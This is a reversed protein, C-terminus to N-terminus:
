SRTGSCKPAAWAERPQAHRAYEGAQRQRHCRHHPPTQVRQLHQALLHCHGRGDGDTSAKIWTRLCFSHAELACQCSRLLRDGWSEEGRCIYCEGPDALQAASAGQNNDSPRARKPPTTAAQHRHGYWTAASSRGQTESSTPRPRRTRAANRGFRHSPSPPSEAPSAANCLNWNTRSSM